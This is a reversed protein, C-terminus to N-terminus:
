AGGSIAQIINLESDPRLPVDLDARTGDVFVNVHRRLDGQEDLVWGELRPHERVLGQLAEGVSAGAVEVRTEGDALDRLPHRLVVVAM